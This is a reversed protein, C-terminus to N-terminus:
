LSFPRIKISIVKPKQSVVVKKSKKGDRTDNVFNVSDALTKKIDDTM